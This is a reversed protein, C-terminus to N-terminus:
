RTSLWLNVLEAVSSVGVKHMLNSRHVDVTKRSIRLRRAIEKSQKGDIVLRLVEAERPSINRFRRRLRFSAQERALEVANAAIAGQVRELLVESQFPKPIFDIAGLKLSRVATPIDGYGSLMIVPLAIGREKFRALAEVGSMRPMRLDLIVCGPRHGDYVALFDAASPYSKSTLAVSGLLRVIVERVDAEDDIVHVIPEFEM